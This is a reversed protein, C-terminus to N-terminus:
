INLQQEIEPVAKASLHHRDVHFQDNSFGDPGVTFKFMDVIHFGFQVARKRIQANFSAVVNAVDTNVKSSYKKDYKPAPVNLFHMRHNWAKNHKAFWKLYGIVTSHILDEIPKDLKTAASIFGENPRCDIEGFSIFVLSGVPISALNARTIAKFADENEKSFHFAKAGFTIKPSVRFTVRNIEINRHAYSLCHSEGIHYIINGTNFDPKEDFPEKLLASLYESYASCFAKNKPALKAVLKPDCAYFNQIHRYTKIRDDSLFCVIASVINYKPRRIINARLDEHEPDSFTSTLLANGRLQAQLSLSNDKAEAYDPKLSLAKEYSTIAEDLKGQDKLAFGMNNHSEASEPKLSLAKEYSTIAEDLKGQDKLAINMSNYAEAYNPMLLLAKEYSAIAEDLKGKDKQAIGLNNLAEAYDPKLSLAKEYCAMAEDLKGQDELSVGLNNFGDAYTPNLETVKKFAESAEGVLGLGKSAAGLINWVVFAKPYQEILFRAQEVVAELQGKNYRNILLNTKEHPLGQTFVSEKPTNLAAVGQQARKNKPFASM